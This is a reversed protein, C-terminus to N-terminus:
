DCVSKLCQNELVENPKFLVYKINLNVVSCKLMFVPQFIM